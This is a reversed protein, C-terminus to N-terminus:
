GRRLRPYFIIMCSIILAFPFNYFFAKLRLGTVAISEVDSRKTEIVEGVFLLRAEVLQGGYIPEQGEYRWTVETEVGFPFKLFTFFLTLGFALIVIFLWNSAKRQRRM